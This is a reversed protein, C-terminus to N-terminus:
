NPPRFGVKFYFGLLSIGGFTPADTIPSNHFYGKETLVGVHCNGYGTCKKDKRGNFRNVWVIVDGPSLEGEEEIKTWHSLEAEVHRVGLSVKEIAGAQKLVITTVKACALEGGATDSGNTRIGYLM